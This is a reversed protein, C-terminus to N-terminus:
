SCVAGFMRPGHGGLGFLGIKGRGEGYDLALVYSVGYGSGCLLVYADSSHSLWDEM